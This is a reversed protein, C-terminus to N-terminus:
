TQAEVDHVLDVLTTATTPGVVVAAIRGTADLVITSPLSTAPVAGDFALLMKGDGDHLSPYPVDFTRVFAQANAQSDDNRDLGLFQVDPLKEQAEVLSPAEGRCPGCWSAWYNVVVVQGRYDALDLTQGDITEGSVEIPDRRDSPAVTVVSGTGTIGASGDTEGNSTSCASISLTLAVSAALVVLRSSALWRIQV